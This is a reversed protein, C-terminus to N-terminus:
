IAIELWVPNKQLLIYDKRDELAINEFQDNSILVCLQIGLFFRNLLYVSTPMPM